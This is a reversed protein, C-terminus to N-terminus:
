HRKNSQRIQQKISQSEDSMLYKQTVEPLFDLYKDLNEEKIAKRIKSASIYNDDNGVAIRPVEILEIDVPPLIKKMAENYAATIPCYNETGVYRKKINLVPVIYDRFIKIDIEAQKQSILSSSDNKLFYDPFIAGSVIYPGTSLVVVNKLHSVGETVLKKRIEYPFVSLNEKVIFLYVVENEKSAKEILYLHGKTFPNCNVVVAAVDNTKTNVKKQKLYEQYDAITKYGFELVTFLPEATALEKYGLSKFLKGTQPKTFVFCRKYKELVKNTLATVILSFATSERFKEDVAVFKLTERNLSGTGIIDDNLNYLILTYTIKSTDYTFGQQRLFDSVKKVDFPNELDLVETRFDTDEFNM